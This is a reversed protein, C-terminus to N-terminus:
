WCSSTTTVLTDSVIRFSGSMLALVPNKFFYFLIHRIVIKLIASSNRVGQLTAPPEPIVHWQIRGFTRRIPIRCRTEIEVMDVCDVHWEAGTQSIKDLDASFFSTIDIKLIASRLWRPNYPDLLPNKSFGIYSKMYATLLCWLKLNSLEQSFQTKQM